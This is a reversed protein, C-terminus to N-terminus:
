GGASLGKRILGAALALACAAAILAWGSGFLMAVGSVACLAAAAALILFAAVPNM